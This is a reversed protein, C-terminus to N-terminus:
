EFVRGLYPLQEKMLRIKISNSVISLDEASFEIRFDLEENGLHIFNAELECEILHLPPLQLEWISNGCEVFSDGIQFSLWNNPDDPYSVSSSMRDITADLAPVKVTDSSMNILYFKFFDGNYESIYYQHPIYLFLDEENESVCRVLPNESILGVRKNWVKAERWASQRKELFWDLSSGDLWVRLVESNEKTVPSDRRMTDCPVSNVVAISDEYQPYSDLM